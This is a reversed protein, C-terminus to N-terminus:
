NVTAFLRLMDDSCVAFPSLVKYGNRGKTAFCRIVNSRNEAISVKGITKRIVINNDKGTYVHRTPLGQDLDNLVPAAPLRSLRRFIILFWCNYNNFGRQPRLSLWCLSVWCLSVSCLSVWCLSVWCLSVWYLSSKHSTWVWCLDTYTVTLMFSVWCILARTNESHQMKNAM